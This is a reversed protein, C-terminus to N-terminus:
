DPSKTEQLGRSLIGDGVDVGTVSGSPGVSRAAAFTVLETGCALDLIHWGTQPNLFSVFVTQSRPTGPIMTNIRALITSVASRGQISETGITM